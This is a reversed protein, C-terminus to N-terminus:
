FNRPNPFIRVVTLFIVYLNSLTVYHSIIKRHLDLTISGVRIMGCGELQKFKELNLGWIQKVREHRLGRDYLFWDISKCLLHISQKRYSIFRRWSLTLFQKNREMSLYPEVEIAIKISPTNNKSQKVFFLVQRRSRRSFINLM